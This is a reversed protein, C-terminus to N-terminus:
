KTMDLHLLRSLVLGEPLAHLGPDGVEEHLQALHLEPRQSPPMQSKVPSNVFALM